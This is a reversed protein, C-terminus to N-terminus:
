GNLHGNGLTESRARSAQDTEFVNVCEFMASSGVVADSSETLFAHVAYKGPLPPGEDFLVQGMYM